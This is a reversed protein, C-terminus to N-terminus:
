MSKHQRLKLLLKNKSHWLALGNSCRLVFLWCHFDVKEYKQAYKGNDNRAMPLSFM